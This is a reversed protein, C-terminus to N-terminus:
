ATARTTATTFLGTSWLWAAKDAVPKGMSTWELVVVVNGTRAVGLEYYGIDGDTKPTTLRSAHMTGGDSIVGLGTGDGSSARVPGRDDVTVDKPNGKDCKAFASSLASVADGAAAASRFQLVHEIFTADGGDNFFLAAKSDTAGLTTPNAICQLPRQQEDVPDPNRHFATYPGITGVDSGSLLPDPALQLYHPSPSPSVTAPPLRHHADAQGGLLAGGTVIVAVAVVAGCVSAAVQHRTRAQGRRRVSAPDTLGCGDAEIRLANLTDRVRDDGRSPTPPLSDSM